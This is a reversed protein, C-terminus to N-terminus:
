EHGGGAAHLVRLVGKDDRQLRFIFEYGWVGTEAHVQALGRGTPLVHVTLFILGNREAGDRGMTVRCCGQQGGRLHYDYHISRAWWFSVNGAAEM